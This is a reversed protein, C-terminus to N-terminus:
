NMLFVNGTLTATIPQDRNHNPRKSATLTVTLVDGDFAFQVNSIDNAAALPRVENPDNTDGDNNLDEIRLIRRTLAGDGNDDEGPDLRADGDDDENVWVYRIPESWNEGSNDLPVQFTVGVPNGGVEDVTLGFLPDMLTPDNEAAAVQLERTMERMVDRLSQMIEGEATATGTAEVTSSVAAYIAISLLSFIAMAIMLEILTFGSTRM